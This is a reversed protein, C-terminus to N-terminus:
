VGLEAETVGLDPFSTMVAPGTKAITSSWSLLLIGASSFAGLFQGLLYAPLSTLPIRGWIAMGVSVAPNMHAGSNNGTVLIGVMVALGASLGGILMAGHGASDGRTVLTSLSIAASKVLLVMIFTGLFEAFFEKPRIFLKVYHMM